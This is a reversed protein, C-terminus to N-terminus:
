LVRPSAATNAACERSRRKGKSETGGAEGRMREAVLRPWVLAVVRAHEELKVAIWRGFFRTIRVRRGLIRANRKRIRNM